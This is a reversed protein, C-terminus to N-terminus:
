DVIWDSNSQDLSLHKVTDLYKGPSHLNEQRDLSQANTKAVEDKRAEQPNIPLLIYSM